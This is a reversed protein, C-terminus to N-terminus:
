FKIFGVKKNSAKLSAISQPAYNIDFSSDLTQHQKPQSNLSNARLNVENEKIERVKSHCKSTLSPFKMYNQDYKQSEESVISNGIKKLESFGKSLISHSKTINTYYTFQPSEIDKVRM